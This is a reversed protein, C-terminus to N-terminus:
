AHDTEEGLLGLHAFAKYLGDDTVDATVLDAQAKLEQSANGMAVGVQCFEFMTHDNSADGFAITNTVDAGLHALLREIAAAKHIGAQGFDGFEVTSGTGSWSGVETWPFAAQAEELLALDPLRFSIKNVDDRYLDAGYVLGPLIARVRDQNEQNAEGYITAAQELFNPSAYLGSNCELYFALGKATLWDVLQRSQEASFVQHFVVQGGHEIYGGNAGIFGDLGIDWLYPYVESKSRGSCTFVQHGAQRAARVARVASEPLHGNYDVLTGDIDLFIFQKNM